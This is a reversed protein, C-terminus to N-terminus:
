TGTACSILQGDVKTVKRSAIEAEHEDSDKALEAAGNKYLSGCRVCQM